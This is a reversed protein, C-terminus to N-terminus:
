LGSVDGDTILKLKHELYSVMPEKTKQENVELDRKNQVSCGLHCAGGHLCGDRELSFLNALAAQGLGAVNGDVSQVVVVGRDIQPVSLVESSVAAEWLIAGDELELALVRADSTGLLVLGTKIEHPVFRRFEHTPVVLHLDDHIPRADTQCQVSFPRMSRTIAFDGARATCHSAGARLSETRAAPKKASVSWVIM